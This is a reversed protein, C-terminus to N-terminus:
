LAQPFHSVRCRDFVCIGDTQASAVGLLGNGAVTYAGQQRDALGQTAPKFQLLNEGPGQIQYPVHNPRLSTTNQQDIWGSLVHVKIYRGTRTGLLGLFNRQRGTSCM